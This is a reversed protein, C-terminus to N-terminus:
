IIRKNLVPKGILEINEDLEVWSTCGGYQPKLEIEQKVALDFVQVVLLQISQDWREFREKIRDETWAHWDNLKKVQNWDKLIKQDVVEAYYHLQVKNEPLHFRDGKLLKGWEPKIYQEAQHFLTPFLLFRSDKIKFDSDEEAIGGKRLIISQRGKGLADVIYSWEKFALAM